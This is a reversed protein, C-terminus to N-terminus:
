YMLCLISLRLYKFEDFSGSFGEDEIAKMFRTRSLKDLHDLNKHASELEPPIYIEDKKNSHVNVMFSMYGTDFDDGSPFNIKTYISNVVNIFESLSYVIFRGHSIFALNKAWDLAGAKIKSNPDDYILITTEADSIISNSFVLPYKEDVSGATEQFKCEFKFLSEGQFACLFM